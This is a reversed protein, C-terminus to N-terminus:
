CHRILDHVVEVRPKRENELKHQDYKKGLLDEAPDFAFKLVRGFKWCVDDTAVVLPPWLEAKTPLPLPWLQSM